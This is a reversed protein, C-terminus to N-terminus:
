ECPGGRNWWYTIIFYGSYVCLSDGDRLSGFLGNLKTFVIAFCVKVGCEWIVFHNIRHGSVYFREFSVNIEDGM